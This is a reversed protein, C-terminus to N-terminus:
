YPLTRVESHLLRDARTKLRHCWPCLLQLNGARAQKIYHWLRNIAGSGHAKWGTPKITDFQLPEGAGCRACKAGMQSILRKRLAKRYHSGRKLTYRTEVGSVVEQDHVRPTVSQTLNPTNGFNAITRDSFDCASPVPRPSDEQNSISPRPRSSSTKLTNSHGIVFLSSYGWLLFRALFYGRVLFYSCSGHWGPPM